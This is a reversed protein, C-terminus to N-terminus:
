ANEQSTPEQNANESTELAETEVNEIKSNEQETPAQAAVEADQKAQEEENNPKNLDPSCAETDAIDDAFINEETTGTSAEDPQIEYAEESNDEITLEAVKATDIVIEENEPLGELTANELQEANLSANLVESTESSM